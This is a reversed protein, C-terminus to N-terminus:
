LWFMEWSTILRAVLPFLLLAKFEYMSVYKEGLCILQKFFFFGCPRSQLATIFQWVSSPVHTPVVLDWVALPGCGSCLCVAKGQIPSCYGLGPNWCLLLRKNTCYSSIHWSNPSFCRVAELLLWLNSRLMLFSCAEKEQAETEDSHNLCRFQFCWWSGHYYGLVFNLAVGPSESCGQVSWHAAIM